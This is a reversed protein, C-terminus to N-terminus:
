TLRRGSVGRQHACRWCAGAPHGFIMDEFVKLSKAQGQNRAVPSATAALKIQDHEVGICYYEDFDAVPQVGAEAAGCTTDIVALLLSKRKGSRHKQLPVGAPGIVGTAEIDDRKLATVVGAFGQLPQFVGEVASGSDIM